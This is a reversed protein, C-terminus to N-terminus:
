AEPPAPFFNASGHIWLAAIVVIGGLCRYILFSWCFVAFVKRFTIGAKAVRLVIYLYISLPLLSFPVGILPTLYWYKRQRRLTELEQEVTAPTLRSGTERSNWEINARAIQDFNADTAVVKFVVFQTLLNFFVLLALPLMWTPHQDIAAFTKTPSVVVGVLKQGETV